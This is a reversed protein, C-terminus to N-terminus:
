GRNLARQVINANTSYAGIAGGVLSSAAAMDGSSMTNASEVQLAYAQKRRAIANAAANNQTVGVQTEALKQTSAIDSVPTGFNLDMGNGSFALRQAGITQVMNDMIQNSEQQGRITEQKAQLQQDQAQFQLAQSSQKAKSIDGYAGSAGSFLSMAMSAMNTKSSLADLASLPAGSQTPGIPYSYEPSGSALSSVSSVLETM